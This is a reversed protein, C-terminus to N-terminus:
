VAAEGLIRAELKKVSHSTMVIKTAGAVQLVNVRTASVPWVNALNQLGRLLRENSEAMVVLIKGGDPVIKKLVKVATATKGDLKEISDCVVINQAQLTLAQSLAKLKLSRSLTLSWNQTGNPGHAVGGGVFLSPTRAGHRANGTGKQKYWKKRTRAVEARTKVKATAQRGNALFVRVAQALLTSNAPAAFVADQATLTTKEGTATISHLKM